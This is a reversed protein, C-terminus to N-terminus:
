SHNETRLLHSENVFRNHSLHVETIPNPSNELLRAISFAGTKMVLYQKKGGDSIRNNWLKLKKLVVTDQNKELFKVLHEIGEDDISNEQGYISTLNDRVQLEMHMRLKGNGKVLREYIGQLRNNLWFTLNELGLSSM